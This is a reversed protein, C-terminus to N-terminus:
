VVHEKLSSDFAAKTDLYIHVVPLKLNRSSLVLTETLALACIEHSSGDRMYQTPAAADDWQHKHLGYVHLDM